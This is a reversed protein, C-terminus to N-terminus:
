QIGEAAPPATEASVDVPARLEDFELRPFSVQEVEGFHEPALPMLQLREFNLDSLERLREPRNLYAWEARLVGLDERAQGLQRQLKEVRQLAAQTAYNENYAWWALGIVALAALAFFVSRM